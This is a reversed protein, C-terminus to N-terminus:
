FCQTHIYWKQMYSMKNKELSLLHLVCKLTLLPKTMEPSPFNTNSVFKDTPGTFHKVIEQNM